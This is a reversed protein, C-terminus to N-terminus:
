CVSCPILPLRQKSPSHWPLNSDLSMAQVGQLPVPKFKLLKAYRQLLLLMYEYVYDMTLQEQLFNQACRGLSLAKHPFTNGWEVAEQISQCIKTKRVPIFHLYPILSRSYFELYQPNIQLMTSGCSMVYKLSVSWGIGEVYVKYRYSCQKSLDSSSFNNKIEDDWNQHYVLISTSSNCQVLMPRIKGMWTNGKWQAIPERQLWKIKEAGSFIKEREVTWPAINVEPWGWFSWDPFVIDYHEDRTTCYSFLPPPPWVSNSSYNKRLVQPRDGCMFMLELDPVQGPFEELLMRIGWLTYQARTQYCYRYREMYLKGDVIVVRFDAKSKAEQLDGQSIGTNKWPSLDREIWKFYDPCKGQAQASFNCNHLEELTSNVSNLQPVELPLKIVLLLIVIGLSTVIIKNKLTMNQLLSFARGKRGFLSDHAQQLELTGPAQVASHYPGPPQFFFKIM